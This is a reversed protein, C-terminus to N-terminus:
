AERALRLRRVAVVCPWAGLLIFGVLLIDVREFGRVAALSISVAALVLYWVIAFWQAPRIMRRPLIDPAALFFILMPLLSVTFAPWFPVKIHFVLDLSSILLVLIGLGGAGVTGKIAAPSWDLLQVEPEPEQELFGGPHEAHRAADGDAAVGYARHYRDFLSCLEPFDIALATASISIPSGVMNYNAQNLMKRLASGQAMYHDPNNVRIVLLKQTQIEVVEAGVVDAWPILGASASSAHDVIGSRNFILAPRSAFLKKLGFLGCAGFFVISALGVAHVYTPDNFRRQAQIRADGLSVMWIGAAVFVCAGLLLLVIKTKSLAIITEDSSDM